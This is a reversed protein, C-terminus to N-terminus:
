NQGTNEPTDTAVMELYLGNSDYGFKYNDGNENTITPMAGIQEPTLNNIKSDMEDMETAVTLLANTIVKNQVPNESTTSFDSDVTYDSIDEISHKHEIKAFFKEIRTLFSALSNPGAYAKQQKSM